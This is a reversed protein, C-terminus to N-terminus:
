DRLDVTAEGPRRNVAAFIQIPTLGSTDIGEPFWRDPDATWHEDFLAPDDRHLRSSGRLSLRTDDTHFDRTTAPNATLERVAGGNHSMPPNSIGDDPAPTAMFCLGMGKMSGAVDKRNLTKSM